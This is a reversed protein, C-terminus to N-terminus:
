YLEAVVVADATAAGTATVMKLSLDDSAAFSVSVTDILASTAAGTLSVTLATDVGNKRLTFTDTLSGGPAVRVRVQLSKILGKAAMKIFIENTSETATGPFLFRTVNSPLTGQLGWTYRPCGNYVTFGKGNANDNALEVGVVKLTGATQSMDSSTGDVSGAHIGLVGSAVNVEAGIYSGSGAGTKLCEFTVSQTHIHAVSTDLLIGRKTGGGASDVRSVVDRLALDGHSTPTSTAAVHIGYVNSSGGDSATSNDVEIRVGSVSATDTTDGTFVVGKLTHHETSTLKLLVDEICSDASMTLLTADATVLLRQITTHHRSYGLLAVDAPMTVNAALNYTGPLVFVLDGAVADALAAEVTLYPRASDGRYATGDFGNVADVWLTNGVRFSEFGRPRRLM